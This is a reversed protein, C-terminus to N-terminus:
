LASATFCSVGWALTSQPGSSGLALLTTRAPLARTAGGACGMGAVLFVIGHAYSRHFVVLDVEPRMRQECVNGQVIDPRDVKRPASAAQRDPVKSREEGPLVEPSRVGGHVQEERKARPEPPDEAPVAPRRSRGLLAEKVSERGGVQRGGEDGGAGGLSSEPNEETGRPFRDRLDLVGRHVRERDEGQHLAGRAM